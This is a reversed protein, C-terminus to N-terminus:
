ISWNLHKANGTPLPNQPDGAFGQTENTMASVFIRSFEKVGPEGVSFTLEGISFTLEGVSFPFEGVSFPFEGVSSPLEGVSFPLEGVSFPLERVSFTV